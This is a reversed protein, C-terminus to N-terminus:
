TECTMHLLKKKSSFIKKIRTALSKSTRVGELALLKDEMVNPLKPQKWFVLLFISFGSHAPYSNKATVAWALAVKPDMKPNNHLIKSFSRDVVAYNRENLGNM